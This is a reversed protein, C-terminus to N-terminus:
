KLEEIAKIFENSDNPIILRSEGCIRKINELHREFYLNSVAASSYKSCRYLMIVKNHIDFDALCSLPAGSNMTVFVKEVKENMMFLELPFAKKYTKVGMNEFRNIKTRPHLKVAVADNGVIEVIKKVFELDDSDHGDEVASDELFIFPEPMSCEDVNYDFIANLKGVIQKNTDFAPIKRIEYDASYQILRPQFVWGAIINAEILQKRRGCLRLLSMYFLNSNNKQYSFVGRPDYYSVIGEEYLECGIDKNNKKLINFIVQEEYRCSVYALFIDYSSDVFSFETRKFFTKPLFISQVAKGVKNATRGNKGTLDSSRLYFCKNFINVLSLKEYIIDSDKSDDTLIVEMYEDKYVTTRLQILVLLMYYSHAMALIRKM